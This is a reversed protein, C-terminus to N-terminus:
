PKPAHKAWGPPSVNTGQKLGNTVSGSGGSVQVADLTSDNNWGMVTNAGNYDACQMTFTGGTTQDLGQTAMDASQDPPLDSLGAYNVYADSPSRLLCFVGDSSNSLNIADGTFSVEYTGAPVTLSAVTTYTNNNLQVESQNQDSAAPGGTPGQWAAGGSGNNTLVQGGTGDLGSVDGDTVQTSYGVITATVKATAGVLNFTLEDSAGVNEQITQTDTGGGSWQLFQGSGGGSNGTPYFNMVGATTGGAEVSLEVTTANTPVTTRGGIVVENLSSNTSMSRATLLKYAPSVTVFSVDTTSGGGTANAAMTFGVSMGATVALAAGIAIPRRWARESKQVPKSM